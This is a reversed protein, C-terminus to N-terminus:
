NVALKSMLKYHRARETEIRLPDHTRGARAVKAISGRVLTGNPGYKRDFQQIRTMTPIWLEQFRIYRPAGFNKLSLMLKEVSVRGAPLKLPIGLM